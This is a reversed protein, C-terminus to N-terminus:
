DAPRRGKGALAVLQRDLSPMLNEFPTRKQWRAIALCWLLCLGAAVSNQWSFLDWSAPNLWVRSSFPWGYPIGWGPGSGYYDMVFHLHALAFYLGFARARNTSWFTLIAACLVAFLLNHGLLHHWAVYTEMGGIIGLGDLDPASAAIMAFLRERPTLPLLSAACWGSMVHTQIHM